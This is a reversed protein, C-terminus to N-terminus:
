PVIEYFRQIYFGGQLEGGKNSKMMAANCQIARDPFMGYIAKTFSKRAERMTASAAIEAMATPSVGAGAGAGAGVDPVPEEM